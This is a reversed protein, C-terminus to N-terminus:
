KRGLEDNIEDHILSYIQDDLNLDPNFEQEWDPFHEEYKRLVVRIQDMIENTLDDIEAFLKDEFSM